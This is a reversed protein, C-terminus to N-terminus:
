SLRHKGLGQLYNGYLSHSELVHNKIMMKVIKRLYDLEFQAMSNKLIEGKLTAVNKELAGNDQSLLLVQGQLNM